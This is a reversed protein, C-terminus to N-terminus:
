IADMNKISWERWGKLLPFYLGVRIPRNDFSSMIDGYKELQSKYREVQDDLFEEVGGSEHRSTKYDVIWRIGNNDVFTRDIVINVLNGHYIGSLAFECKADKHESSVIWQGRPDHLTQILASQVLKVAEELDERAVGVSRLSDRFYDSWKEIRDAEWHEAGETAIQELCRHVITGM